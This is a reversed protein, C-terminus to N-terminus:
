RRQGRRWLRLGHGVRPRCQQHPYYSVLLLVVSRQWLSTWLSTKPHPVSMDVLSALDQITPLRWGKRNWVTLNMCRQSANVWNVPSPSPFREWVLGTEKDLVAAGGWDSLVIFRASAPLQLDWSPAAYYPGPATPVVPTIQMQQMQMQAPSTAFAVMILVISGLTYLLGHRM